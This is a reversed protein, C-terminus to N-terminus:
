FLRYAAARGERVIASAPLRRVYAAIGGASPPEVACADLLLLLPFMLSRESLPTAEFLHSLSAAPPM